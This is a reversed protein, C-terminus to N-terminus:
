IVRYDNPYIEPSRGLHTHKIITYDSIKIRSGDLKKGQWGGLTDVEVTTIENHVRTFTFVCNDLTKLLVISVPNDAFPNRHFDFYYKTEHRCFRQNNDRVITRYAYSEWPHRLMIAIFYARDRSLRLYFGERRDLYRLIGEIM